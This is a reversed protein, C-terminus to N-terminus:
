YMWPMKSRNKWGAQHEYQVFYIKVDAQHEYEVFYVKKDAQHPYLTFFWRGENEKAQHEYKVKFVKLDAQHEYNVVYVKVDAQHEYQVSFVKQAMLSGEHLLGILGILLVILFSKLSFTVPQMFRFYTMRFVQKM